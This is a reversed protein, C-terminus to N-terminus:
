AWQRKLGNASLSSSFGVHWLVAELKIVAYTMLLKASM